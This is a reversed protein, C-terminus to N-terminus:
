KFINKSIPFDRFLCAGKKSLSNLIEEKNEKFWKELDNISSNSKLKYGVIFEINFNEVLIENNMKNTPLLISKFFLFIMM